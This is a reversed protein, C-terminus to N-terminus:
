YGLATPVQSDVIDYKQIKYKDIKLDTGYTGATLFFIRISFSFSYFKLFQSTDSFYIINFAVFIISCM